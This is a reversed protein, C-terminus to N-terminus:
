NARENRVTDPVPALENLDVCLLEHRNQTSPIHWSSRAMEKECGESAFGCRCKHLEEDTRVTQWRRRLNPQRYVWHHNFSPVESAMLRAVEAVVGFFSVAM